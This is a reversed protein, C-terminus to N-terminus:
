LAEVTYGQMDLEIDLGNEEDRTCLYGIIKEGKKVVCTSYKNKRTSM